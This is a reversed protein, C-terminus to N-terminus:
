GELYTGVIKSFLKFTEDMKLNDPDLLWQIQLGDMVAFILSSLQDIDVNSRIEDSEFIEAFYGKFVARIRKYREVFYDHSPHDVRISEGVLVTFLSVLGPRKENETVLDELAEFIQALSLGDPQVLTTYKKEDQHDRYELVSQLLNVKSPFYHLLGPETLDVAEAISALSTGLYGRVGFLDSAAHLIEERRDRRVRSKSLDDNTDNTM